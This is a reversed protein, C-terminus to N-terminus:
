TQKEKNVNKKGRDLTTKKEKHESEKKTWFMISTIFHVTQLLSFVQGVENNEESKSTGRYQYTQYFLRM